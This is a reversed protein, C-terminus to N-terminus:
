EMRRRYDAPSIPWEGRDYFVVIGPDDLQLVFGADVIAKYEVRMAEAIGELFDSESKYYENPRTLFSGPAISPIFAEDAPAGKLAAKLNEIDMQVLAEGRYSLPGTCAASAGYLPQRFPQLREYEEYFGAFNRRDAGGSYR